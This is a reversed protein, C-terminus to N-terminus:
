GRQVDAARRQRPRLRSATRRPGRGLPRHRPTARRSSSARGPRRCPARRRRGGRSRATRTRPTTCSRSRRAFSAWRDARTSISNALGWKASFFIFVAFALVAAGLLVRAQAETIASNALFYQVAQEQTWGRETQWYHDVRARDNLRRAALYDTASPMTTTPLRATAPGSSPAAPRACSPVRTSPAISTKTRSTASCGACWCCTAVCM